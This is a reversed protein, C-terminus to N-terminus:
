SSGDSLSSNLLVSVAVSSAGYTRFIMEGLTSDGVDNFFSSLLRRCFVM